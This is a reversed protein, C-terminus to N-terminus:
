RQSPASPASRFPHGEVIGKGERAVILQNAAVDKFTEVAGQPWRITVDARTVTGLGFHVRFDGQSIHYGGSRVEDIQKRHGSTVTIRAGIADRGSATLARVLLANGRPGFNKLLSPPEFLNVVVIEESGDNDLDGVAIGRSSHKSTVGPGATSSMDFFQGDGRNWYLQRPQRFEEGLGYKGVFPYVHGAAVFLDKWGDNDVDVFATGWKVYRTQVALGARSTVDSFSGNGLNRYLTNTDSSFNTKFIDLYGDGDYDGATAGMGAQERGDENVAVGSILGIEEFTGNGKNHFFLSPTSDCAVFIDPWGDNDFDGTLVTFGYYEPPTQIGAQKTVDTFHGHGDNHYLTMTEGKLGRPGCPVPIGKWKCGSRERPRPTQQANFDIYNAVVLDLWGDRDYDIFACGTSWRPASRDLGRERTEDRFTGNGMNHLFVNHGWQTIFLDVNGDNDVDGACVGQGWGTHGIGAKETVDEFRLGGLNHYLHPTLPVPGPKLRDGQVLFIDPLGDNDYDFIAVGTGTNEVVTTQEPDGSVIVASLGAEAAVDRFEVVPAKMGPPLPRVPQDRAGSSVMQSLAAREMSLTLPLVIGAIAALILWASRRAPPRM